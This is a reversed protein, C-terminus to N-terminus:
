MGLEMLEDPKLKLQKLVIMVTRNKESPLLSILTEPQKEPNEIAPLSKSAAAERQKAAASTSFWECINDELGVVENTQYEQLMHWMTGPIEGSPVKTWYFPQLRFKTRIKPKAEMGDPIGNDSIPISLANSSSSSEVPKLSKLLLKCLNNEEEKTCHDRQMHKRVANVDKKSTKFTKEYSHIRDQFVSLLNDAAARPLLRAENLDKELRNLREQREEEASDMDANKKAQLITGSLFADIEEATFQDGIMMTQRIQTDTLGVKKMNEFRKYKQVEETEDVSAEEKDEVHPRLYSKTEPIGQVEELKKVETELEKIRRSLIENNKEARVAFLALDHLEAYPEGGEEAKKLLQEKINVDSFAANIARFDEDFIDGSPITNSKCIQLLKELGTPIAAWLGESEVPILLLQQFIRLLNGNNGSAVAEAILFRSVDYINDWDVGSKRIINERNGFMMREYISYQNGFEAVFNLVKQVTMFDGDIQFNRKSTAKKYLYQRISASLHQVWRDKDEKSNCAFAFEKGNILLSFLPRKEDRFAAISTFEKLKGISGIPYSAKLKNSKDPGHYVHFGNSSLVHHREKLGSAWKGQGEVWLFGSTIEQVPGKSEISNEDVISQEISDANESESRNDTISRKSDYSFFSKRSTSSRTLHVSVQESVETSSTRQFNFSVQKHHRDGKTHGVCISLSDLASSDSTLELNSSEQNITYMAKKVLTEFKHRQLENRLENHMKIEKFYAAQYVMSNVLKLVATKVEIDGRNLGDCLKEFCPALDSPTSRSLASSIAQKSSKPNYVSCLRLMEMAKYIINLPINLFWGM